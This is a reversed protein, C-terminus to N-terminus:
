VIVLVHGGKTRACSGRMLRVHVSSSTFRGRRRVTPLTSYPAMMEGGSDDVRVVLLTCCSDNGTGNLCQVIVTQVGSLYRSREIYRINTSWWTISRQVEGKEQSPSRKM